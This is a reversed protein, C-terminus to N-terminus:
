NVRQNRRLWNRQLCRLFNFNLLYYYVDLTKNHPWTISRFGCHGIKLYWKLWRSSKNNLIFINRIIELQTIVRFKCARINNINFIKDNHYNPSHIFSINPLSNHRGMRANVDSHFSGVDSASKIFCTFSGANWGMRVRTIFSRCLLLKVANRRCEGRDGRPTRGPTTM